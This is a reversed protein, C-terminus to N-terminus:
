PNLKQGGNGVGAAAWKEPTWRPPAPPPWAVGKSILFAKCKEKARGEASDSRLRCVYISDALTWGNGGAKRFDAGRELLGVIPGYHDAFALSIMLTDGASDTANIDAGRDLLMALNEPRKSRAASFTIPEQQDNILNPNGGHDLLLKLMDPNDGGAALMMASFNGKLYLNPDAGLNLLEKVAAHNRKGIAYVLLSPGAGNDDIQNVNLGSAALAQLKKLDNHDIARAAEQLLPSKFMADSVRNNMFSREGGYVVTVGCLFVFISKLKM